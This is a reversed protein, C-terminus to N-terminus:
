TTDLIIGSVRRKLFIPDITNVVFSYRNNELNAPSTRQTVSKIRTKDTIKKRQFTM